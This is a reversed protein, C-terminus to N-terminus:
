RLRKVESFVYKFKPNKWVKWAMWLLTGLRLRGKLMIEGEIVAQEFDPEIQVQGFDGSFIVMSVGYLMGTTDPTDFGYHIWGKAKQPRIVGWFQRLADLIVDFGQQSKSSNVFDIMQEAKDKIKDLKKKMTDIQLSFARIKQFTDQIKKIITQIKELISSVKSKLSSVVSAVRELLRNRRGTTKKNDEIKNQGNLTGSSETQPQEESVDSENGRDTNGDAGRNMNCEMKDELIASQESENHKDSSDNEMAEKQVQSYGRASLELSKTKTVKGNEEVERQMSDSSGQACSQKTPQLNDSSELAEKRQNSDALVELQPSEQSQTQHEKQKGQEPQKEKHTRLRRLIAMLRKVDFGLLRFRIWPKNKEDLGIKIGLVPFMWSIKGLVFIKENLYSGDLRYRIPVFLICLLLVVILGLSVLLVWGIIKLILLIVGM